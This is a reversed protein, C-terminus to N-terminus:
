HDVGSGAEKQTACTSAGGTEFGEGEPPGYARALRRADPARSAPPLPREGDLEHYGPTGPGRHRSGAEKGFAEGSLPPPGAQRTPPTGDGGLDRYGPTGPGRHRSNAKMIENVIIERRGMLHRLYEYDKELTDDLMREARIDSIM